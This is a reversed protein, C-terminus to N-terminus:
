LINTVPINEGDPLYSVLFKLCMSALFFSEFIFMLLFEDTGPAIDAFASMYSYYFSSFLSLAVDISCWMQYYSNDM